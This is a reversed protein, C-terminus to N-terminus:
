LRIEDIETDLTYGYKESYEKFNACLEKYESVEEGYNFINGSHLRINYIAEGITELGCGKAIEVADILNM